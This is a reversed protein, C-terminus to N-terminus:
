PRLYGVLSLGVSAGVLHDVSEFPPNVRSATFTLDGLLRERRVVRGSLVLSASRGLAVEAGLGASVDFFFMGDAPCEEGPLPARSRLSANLAGLGVGGLVFVQVTHYPTLFFRADLTTGFEIIGDSGDLRRMEGGGMGLGVDIALRDLPRFFIGVEGRTRHVAGRPLMLQDVRLFMGAGARSGRLSPESWPPRPAQADISQALAPTPAVALTAAVGALWRPLRGWGASRPSRHPVVM